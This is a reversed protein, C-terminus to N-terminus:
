KFNLNAFEGHYKLAARDYAFAAEEENKFTGLKMYKGNVRIRAIIYEHDILGHKTLVHYKQYMVGLYKSRGRPTKNKQNESKNCSRLNDRQNNLKNRDKHDSLILPDTLGLLFRHMRINYRKNNKSSGSIVYGDKDTRWSRKSLIPYDCDDVMTIQGTTLIIEKM